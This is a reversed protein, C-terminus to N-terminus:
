SNSWFIVFFASYLLATESCMYRVAGYGPGVQILLSCPSELHSREFLLMLRVQSDAPFATKAGPLSLRWLGEMHTQHILMHSSIQQKSCIQKCIVSIEYFVQFDATESSISFSATNFPCTYKRLLYFGVMIRSIKLYYFIDM